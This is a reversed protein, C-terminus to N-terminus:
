PCCRPSPRIQQGLYWSNYFQLAASRQSQEAREQRDQDDRLRAAFRDCAELGYRGEYHLREPSHEALVYCRDIEQQPTRQPAVTVRHRPDDQPDTACGPLLLLIAFCWMSRRM